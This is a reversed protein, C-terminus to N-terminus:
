EYSNILDTEICVTNGDELIGKLVLGEEEKDLIVDKFIYVKEGSEKENIKVAVKGNRFAKSKLSSYLLNNNLQVFENYYKSMTREGEMEGKFIIRVIESNVFMDIIILWNNLDDKSLIKSLSFIFYDYMHIANPLDEKSHDIYYDALTSVTESLMEFIEIEEKYKEYDLKFNKLLGYNLELDEGNKIKIIIEKDKDYGESNVLKYLYYIAKVEDEISHYDINCISYNAICEDMQEETQPNLEEMYDLLEMLNIEKSM